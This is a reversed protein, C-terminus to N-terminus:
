IVKVQVLKWFALILFKKNIFRNLIWIAIMEGFISSIYPSTIFDGKKWINRKKMIDMPIIICHLILLNIM